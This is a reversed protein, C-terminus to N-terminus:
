EAKRKDLYYGVLLLFRNKPYNVGPDTHGTSPYAKQIEAHSTIGKAGAKIEAATLWVVPIDFKLCLQATIKTCNDIVQMSYGDGWELATQAAKGCQEIHVGDQNAGIAGAATDSDKVCQIIERDDVVYHSSGKRPPNQFYTAIARAGGEVELSETSHVVILRVQKARGKIQYKAPIYEFNDTDRMGAM